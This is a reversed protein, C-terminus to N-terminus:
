KWVRSSKIHFCVVNLLLGCASVSSSSSLSLYLSSRDGCICHLARAAAVIISSGFRFQQMFNYNCVQGCCRILTKSKAKIVPYSCALLLMNLKLVLKIQTKICTGYIDSIYEADFTLTKLHKWTQRLECCTDGCWWVLRPAVNVDNKIPHWRPQLGVLQSTCFQSTCFAWDEISGCFKKFNCKFVKRCQSYFRM